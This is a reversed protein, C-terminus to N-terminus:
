TLFSERDNRTEDFSFINLPHMLKTVLKLNWRIVSILYLFSSFYLIDSSM